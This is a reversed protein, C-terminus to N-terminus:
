VELEGVENEYLFGREDGGMWFDIYEDSGGVM